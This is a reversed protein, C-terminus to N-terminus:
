SSSSACQGSSPGRRTARRPKWPWHSSHSPHDRRRGIRPELEDPPQVGLRLPPPEAQEGALPLIEDVGPKRGPELGDVEEDRALRDPCLQESGNRRKRM